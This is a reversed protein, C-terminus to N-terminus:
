AVAEWTITPEIALAAGEVEITDKDEGESASIKKKAFDPFLHVEFKAKDQHLVKFILDVAHPEHSPRGSSWTSAPGRKKLVDVITPTDGAEGQYALYKAGFNIACEEQDGPRRERLQGRDKVSLYEHTEDWKLTGEDILVELTEALRCTWTVTGDTTTGGVTTGWTPETDDSTGPTTCVYLYAGRAVPRVVQAATYAKEAAWPRAGERVLLKGDRLNKVYPESM